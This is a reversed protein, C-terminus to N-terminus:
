MPENLKQRLVNKPEFVRISLFDKIKQYLYFGSNPTLKSNGLGKDDIHLYIEFISNRKFDSQLYNSKILKFEFIGSLLNLICKTVHNIEKKYKNSTNRDSWKKIQYRRLFIRNEKLIELM